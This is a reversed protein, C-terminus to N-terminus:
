GVLDRYARWSALGLWPFTVILAWFATAASILLVAALILAWLFMPAPNEAVARFSTFIAAFVNNRPDLLMPAAIVVLCYTFFAMGGGIITGAILMSHGESTTLAFRVFDEVTVYFRYTSLGYVIQAIRGWLLYILTLALGLYLVDQRMAGRVCLMAMLSPKEGREILRGAEYLGMAMMPALFVFGCSLTLVWFPLDYAVLGYTILFSVGAVALGYILCAGPAKMFDSWGEGLWRLPATVAVKRVSPTMVAETM